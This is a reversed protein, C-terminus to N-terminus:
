LLAPASRSIQVIELHFPWLRAASKFGAMLNLNLPVTFRAVFVHLKNQLMATFRTSIRRHM